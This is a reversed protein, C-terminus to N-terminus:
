DRNLAIAVIAEIFDPYTLGAAEAPERSAGDYAVTPNANYDVIYPTTGRLRIDFRAYDRCELARYAALVAKELAAQQRPTLKAPCQVRDSEKYEPSDEEWKARYTILRPKDQYWSGFLIELPPLIKVQSGNGVVTVAIERGAIYEEVLVQESVEQKVWNIQTLLEEQRRVLSNLTVSVSAHATASKVVVPYVVEAIQEEQWWRPTSLGAKALLTKTVLKDSSLRLTYSDAGTFRRGLKELLAIVLSCLSEDEVQNFIIEGSLQPIVETFNEPTLQWLQPRHGKEALCWEIAYAVDETEQDVIAEQPNASVGQVSNYIIDLRYGRSLSQWPTVKGRM